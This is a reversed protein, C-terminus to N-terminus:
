YIYNFNSKVIQIFFMSSSSWQRDSKLVLWNFDLLGRLDDANYPLSDKVYFDPDANASLVQNIMHRCTAPSIWERAHIGCESNKIFSLLVHFTRVWSFKRKPHITIRTAWIFVSFEDAM